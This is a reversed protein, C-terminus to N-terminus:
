RLAASHAAAADAERATIRRYEFLDAVATRVDRNAEGYTM